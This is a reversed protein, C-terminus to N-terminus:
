LAGPPRYTGHSAVQIMTDLLTAPTVETGFLTRIQASWPIPIIEALGAERVGSVHRGIAEHGERAWVIMEELTDFGDLPPVVIPRHQWLALFAQQVVHLHHMKERVLVDGRAPACAGIANWLRADAWAAQTLLDRAADAASM